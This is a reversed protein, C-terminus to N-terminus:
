IMDGANIENHPKKKWRYGWFLMIAPIMLDFVLIFLHFAVLAIM